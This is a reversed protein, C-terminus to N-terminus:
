EVQNTYKVTTYDTQEHGTMWFTCERAVITGTVYVNGLSDVALARAEEWAGGLGRLRATWLREGYNGFKITRYLYPTIDCMPLDWVNETIYVNGFADLAIDSGKTTDNWLLNGESDYKETGSGGTVYVNGFADLALAKSSHWSTVRNGWPDYHYANTWLMNGESDYKYTGNGGGILHGTVYINGHIDFALSSGTTANTWLMNGASDYKATGSDGTVYMNGVADVALDSGKHANTWLMNGANDYKITGSAGTVYLNGFADLALAEGNRTDSWLLNGESDYKVTVSSGTVYVNHMADVAIASSYRDAPSDAVWLKKGASDYKVTGSTGTVYINGQSDIHIELGRDYEYDWEGGPADYTAVWAQTVPGELESQPSCGSCTVAVWIQWRFLFACIFVTVVAVVIALTMWRMSTMKSM